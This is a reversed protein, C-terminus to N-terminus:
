NLVIFKRTLSHGLAYLRYYYVGAAWGAAHLPAEHFGAPTAEDHLIETVRRGRIDYVALSVKGPTPMRFGIVADGRVPNPRCAGLSMAAPLGSSETTMSGAQMRERPMVVAAVGSHPFGDLTRFGGGIYVSNESTEIADVDGDPDLRLATPAGSIADLVALNRRPEGGIGGFRGGAWVERDRVTLVKIHPENAYDYEGTPHPDWPLLAGTMGDLAALDRRPFWPAGGFNGGVYITSERAAIVEFGGFVRNEPNALPDWPLLAGSAADVAALYPHFQGNVRVFGGVLYRRGNALVSDYLPGDLQFNFSGPNNTFPSPPNGDVLKGTGLDLAAFGDRLQWDHLSTFDGGVYVNEADVALARVAANAKPSWSTLRETGLDFAAAHPVALGDIHYWDGGMYLTNGVVVLAFPASDPEPAFSTLGGTRTNFAAFQARRDAGFRSFWGGVYLTQGRVALASVYPWIWDYHPLSERVPGLRPDWSTAQGSEADLAALASRPEGGIEIFDGGAYVVKGDFAISRVRNEADPNWATPTGTRLNLAAIAHRAVGGAMRFDGGIYLTNGALVMCRVEDDVDPNWDSISGTGINIGALNNRPQGGAEDFRGGVYLTSGRLVLASVGALSHEVGGAEIYADVGVISPNWPAVSGDALVHALNSRPIGEVAAFRGGIFWGGAGDSVVASISGAVRGYPTRPAGIERDVPVGGGTNPGATTFWGRVYLTDGVPRVEQVTGNVGWLNPNVVQAYVTRAASSWCILAILALAAPKAEPLNM